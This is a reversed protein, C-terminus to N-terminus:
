ASGSTLPSRPGSPLEAGDAADLCSGDLLGWARMRELLCLMRVQPPQHESLAAHLDSVCTAAEQASLAVIREKIPDTTKSM